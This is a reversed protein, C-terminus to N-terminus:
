AFSIQTLISLLYHTNFIIILYLLIGPLKFFSLRDEKKERLKFPFGLASPLQKKKEVGACCRIYPTM